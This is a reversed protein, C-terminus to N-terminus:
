CKKLFPINETLETITVNTVDQLGSDWDNLDAGAGVRVLRPVAKAARGWPGARIGAVRM